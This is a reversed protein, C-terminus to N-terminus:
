HARSVLKRIPSGNRATLGLCMHTNANCILFDHIQSPACPVHWPLTLLLFLTFSSMFITNMLNDFFLDNNKFTDLFILLLLCTPLHTKTTTALSYYM